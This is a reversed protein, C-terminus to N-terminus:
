EAFYKFMNQAEPMHSTGKVVCAQAEQGPLVM